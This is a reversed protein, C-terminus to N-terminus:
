CTKLIPNMSQSLFKGYQINKLEVYNTRMAGTNCIVVRFIGGQIMSGM